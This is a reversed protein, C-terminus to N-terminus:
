GKILGLRDYHSGLVEDTPGGLWDLAAAYLSRPDVTAAVDGDSLRGLDVHGVVQTGVVAPGLLMHAGGLGHDTGASGNEAVRRGFESTTMLVVRDSWGAADGAEFFATMGAALDTLLEEHRALQASHTDYGGATVVM